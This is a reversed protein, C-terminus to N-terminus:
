RVVVFVAARYLTANARARKNPREDFRKLVMFFIFRLRFGVQLGTVVVIPIIKTESDAQMYKTAKMAGAINTSFDFTTKTQYVGSSGRDIPQM